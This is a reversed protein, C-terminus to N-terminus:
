DETSLRGYFAFRLGARVTEGLRHRGSQEAWAALGGGAAM